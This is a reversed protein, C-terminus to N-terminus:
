EIHTLGGSACKLVEDEMVGGGGGGGGCVSVRM